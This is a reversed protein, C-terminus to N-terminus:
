KAGYYRCNDIDTDTDTDTDTDIDIDIGLLFSAFNWDM